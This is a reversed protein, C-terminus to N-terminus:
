IEKKVKIQIECKIRIMCNPGMITKAEELITKILTEKEVRLLLHKRVIISEILDDDIQIFEFRNPAVVELMRKAAEYGIPCYKALVLIDGAPPVEFTSLEMDITTRKARKNKM